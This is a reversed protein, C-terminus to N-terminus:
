NLACIGPCISSMAPLSFRKNLYHKKGDQIFPLRNGQKGYAHSRTLPPDTDTRLELYSHYSIRLLQAKRFTDEWLGLLGPSGSLGLATEVQWPPHGNSVCRAQKLQKAKHSFTNSLIKQAGKPSLIKDYFDERLYQNIPPGNGHSVRAAPRNHVQTAERQLCSISSILHQLKKSTM